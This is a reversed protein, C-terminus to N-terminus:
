ILPGLVRGLGEALDRWYGVKHEPRGAEHFQKQFWHQLAELPAGSRIMVGIEYNLLLSRMDFNASGLIAYDGDVLVAKAHMMKEVLSVQCGSRLLDRLYTGRALDALFHNSKRPVLVRVDVGRRAALKLAMNLADDPIFYPTAIWIRKSAQYILSILTDYLPDWMVDPGGAIVRLSSEGPAEPGEVIERGPKEGTAFKWDEGFVAEMDRVCAGEAELGLDIWRGSDPQPGIYEKAINMGGLLAKQSDIILLKRHYRLNARGRLPMHIVPNFFVAEGGKSKLGKFSPHRVMFSGLSDLLLRVQVGQEAKKELLGALSKGVEDDAFIFTALHIRKRASEILEVIDKYAQEGNLILRAKQGSCSPPLGLGALLKDVTDEQRPVEEPNPQYLHKKKRLRTQFKRDALLVYLPIGIYPVLVIFLLWALTNGPPRKSRLVFSVFLLTLLFNLILVVQGLPWTFLRPM